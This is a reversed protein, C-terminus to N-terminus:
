GASALLAGRFFLYGGLIATFMGVLAGFGWRISGRRARAAPGAESLWNPPSFIWRGAALTAAVDSAWFSLQPRTIRGGTPRGDSIWEAQHHEFEYDVVARWYRNALASCWFAVGLGVFMLCFGVITM